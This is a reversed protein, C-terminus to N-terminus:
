GVQAWSPAPRREIAPKRRLGYYSEAASSPRCFFATVKTLFSKASALMEPRVPSITVIAAEPQEDVVVV